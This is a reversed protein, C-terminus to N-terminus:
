LGGGSVSILVFESIDWSYNVAYFNLQAYFSINKVICSIKVTNM